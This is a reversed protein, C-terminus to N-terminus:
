NTTPHYKTWFDSSSMGSAQIAAKCADSVAKTDNTSSLDKYLDLCKAILQAVEATNTVPKPTATPETIPKIVPWRAWFDTASLGSAAIAKACMASAYNVQETPTTSTLAGQVKRCAYILGETEATTAPKPATTTSPKAPALEKSFKTWFETPTMGTAAIAKNCADYIVNVQAPETTSTLASHLKFCTSLLAYTEDNTTSKPSATPKNVTSPPTPRGYKNWFDDGTLGSASMARKCADMVGPDHATYKDFCDKVLATVDTTTNDGAAPQQDAWDQFKKWFEDAPLGSAALAQACAASNNENFNRWDTLCQQIATELGATKPETKPTSTPAVPGTVLGFKLAFESSTMGSALIAAKCAASTAERDAQPANDGAARIAGYKTLCDQILVSIETTSTQQSATPTAPKETSKPATVSLNPKSSASPQAVIASPTASPLEQHSPTNSFEANSVLAASAAVGVVLAGKSLSVLKILHSWM